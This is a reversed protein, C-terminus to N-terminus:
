MANCLADWSVSLVISFDRSFASICKSKKKVGKKDDIADCVNHLM